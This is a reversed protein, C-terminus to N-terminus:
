RCRLERSLHECRGTSARTASSRPTSAAPSSACSPSASPWSTSPATSCRPRPRTTPSSRDPSGCSSRSRSSANSRATMSTASSGAASPTGATLLRARSRRVEAVQARLEAELRENQLALSTAAGLGRVLETEDRLAADHILAAVPRGDHEIPTAVRNSGEEPLTVPRGDPDIYRQSEPLWFALTLTPDALAEALVDRLESAGLRGGLRKVLGAVASTRHLHSRALGFLFAFPVAAVAPYIAWEVGLAIADLGPAIYLSGSLVFVTALLLGTFLVPTLSRRQTPPSAM